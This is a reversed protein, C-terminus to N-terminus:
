DEELADIILEVLKKVLEESLIKLLVDKNMMYCLFFIKCRYDNLLLINFSNDLIEKNNKKYKAIFKTIDEQNLVLEDNVEENILNFVKDLISLWITYGSTSSSSVASPPSNEFIFDFQNFNVVQIWKFYKCIYTIGELIIYKKLYKGYLNKLYILQNRVLILSSDIFESVLSTLSEIIKTNRNLKKKNKLNKLTSFKILHSDPHLLKNYKNVNKKNEENEKEENEDNEENIQGTLYRFKEEDECLFTTFNSSCQVSNIEILIEKQLNFIDCNLTKFAQIQQLNLQIQLTQIKKHLVKLPNNESELEDEDEEKNEIEKRKREEENENEKEDEKENEPNSSASSPPASNYFSNSEEEHQKIEEEMRKKAIKKINNKVTLCLNSLSDRLSTITSLLFILSDLMKFVSSNINIYSNKILNILFVLNDQFYFNKNFKTSNIQNIIIYNEIENYHERLKKYSSSIEISNQLCFISNNVIKEISLFYNNINLGAHSYSSGCDTLLEMALKTIKQSAEVIFEIHPIALSISYSTPTVPFSYSPISTTETPVSSFYVTFINFIELLSSSFEKNKSIKEINKQSKLNLQALSSCQTLSWQIHTILSNIYVVISDAHATNSSLDPEYPPLSIQPKKISSENLFDTKKKKEEDSDNKKLSNVDKEINDDEIEKPKKVHKDFEDKNDQNNESLNINEKNEEDMKNEKELKEDSNVESNEDDNKKKKSVINTSDDYNKEIKIEKEINEEYNREKVIKLAEQYFLNLKQFKEKSGGKKDPHYERALIRYARKIKSETINEESLGLALFARTSKIQNLKLTLFNKFKLLKNIKIKLLDIKKNNLNFIKDNNKKIEKENDLEDDDEVESDDTDDNNNDEDNIDIDDNKHTDELSKKLSETYIEKIENIPTSLYAAIEKLSDVSEYNHIELGDSNLWPTTFYQVNSSSSAIDDKLFSYKSKKKLNEKMKKKKITNNEELYIHLLQIILKVIFIGDHGSNIALMKDKEEQNEENDEEKEENDNEERKKEEENKSKLLINSPLCMADIKMQKLALNIQIIGIEKSSNESAKELILSVIESVVVSPPRSFFFEYLIGSDSLFQIPLNLLSRICDLAQFEGNPDKLTTFESLDESSEAISSSSSSSQDSQMIDLLALMCQRGSEHGEVWRKLHTCALKPLESSELESTSILNLRSLSTNGLSESKSSIKSNLRRLSAEKIWQRECFESM